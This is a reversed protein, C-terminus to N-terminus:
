KRAWDSYEFAGAGNTIRNRIKYFARENTAQVTLRDGPVAAILRWGRLDQSEWVETAANWDGKDWAWTVTRAPPAIVASAQAM